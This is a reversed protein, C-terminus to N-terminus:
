KTTYDTTSGDDMNLFTSFDTTETEQETSTFDSFTTSENPMESPTVETTQDDIPVITTTPQNWREKPTQSRDNESLSRQGEKNHSV